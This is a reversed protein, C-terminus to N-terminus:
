FSKKIETFVSPEWIPFLVFLSSVRYADNKTSKRNKVSLRIYKEELAALDKKLSEHEKPSLWFGVNSSSTGNKAPGSGLDNMVRECNQKLVVETLKLALSGGAKYSSVGQVLFQIEGSSSPKKIVGIEELAGLYKQTVEDSLGFEAAIKKPTKQNPYLQSFYAYVHPNAALYEEQKETFFQKEEVKRNAVLIGGLSFCAVLLAFSLKKM